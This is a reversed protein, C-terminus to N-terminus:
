CFIIQGNAITYVVRGKLEMGQFPTNKGKSFHRAADVTYALDPDIITIDAVDGVSIRGRELRLARAPNASMAAAWQLPTLVGTMVLHTIGLGVATELGTIGFASDAM